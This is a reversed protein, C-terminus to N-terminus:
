RTASQRGREVRALVLPGGHSAQGRKSAFSSHGWKLQGRDEAPREAQDPEPRGLAQHSQAGARHRPADQPISLAGRERYVVEGKENVILTYPLEGKWVTAPDLADFLEDKKDSALIYNKM